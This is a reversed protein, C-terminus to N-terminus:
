FGNLVSYHDDPMHRFHNSISSDSDIVTIYALTKIWCELQENIRHKAL